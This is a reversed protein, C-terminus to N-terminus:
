WCSSEVGWGCWRKCKICAYFPRHLIMVQFLHRRLRPRTPDLAKLLVAALLPLHPALAAPGGRGHLLRVLATVGLLAGPSEAGTAGAVRHWSWDCWNDLGASDYVSDLRPCARHMDGDIWMHVLLYAPFCHWGKDYM